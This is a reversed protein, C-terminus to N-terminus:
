RFEITSIWGIRGKRRVRVFALRLCGVLHAGLPFKRAFRSNYVRCGSAM